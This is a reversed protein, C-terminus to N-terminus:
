TVGGGAWQPSRSSGQRARGTGKQRWPKRGGGRVEARTLTNHTGSRAAALQATVVQHLVATNPAIGFVADDLDVSGAAQGGRTRVDVSAM